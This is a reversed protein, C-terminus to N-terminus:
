SFRAVAIGVPEVSMALIADFKVNRDREMDNKKDHRHSFALLCRLVIKKLEKNMTQGYSVSYPDLIGVERPQPEALCIGWHSEYHVTWITTDIDNM